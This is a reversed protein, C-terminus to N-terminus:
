VGVEVIFLLIRSSHQRNSASTELRKGPVRGDGHRLCGVGLLLGTSKGGAHSLQM